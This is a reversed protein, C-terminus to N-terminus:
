KQEIKIKPLMKRTSYSPLFLIFNAKEVKIKIKFIAFIPYARGYVLFYFFEPRICLCTFLFVTLGTKPSRGLSIIFITASSLHDNLGPGAKELVYSMPRRSEFLEIGRNNQLLKVLKITLLNSHVRWQLCFWLTFRTKAINPILDRNPSVKTITFIVNENTKERLIENNNQNSLQMNTKDWGFFNTSWFCYVIFLILM